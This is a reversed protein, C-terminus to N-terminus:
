FEMSYLILDHKWDFLCLSLDPKTLLKEAINLIFNAFRQTGARLGVDLANGKDHCFLM